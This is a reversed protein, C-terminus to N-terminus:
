FFSQSLATNTVSFLLVAMLMLWSVWYIVKRM